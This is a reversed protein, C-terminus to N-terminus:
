LPSRALLCLPLNFLTLVYFPFMLFFFLMFFSLVIMCCTMGTRFLSFYKCYKFHWIKLHMHSSALAITKYYSQVFNKFSSLPIFSSLKITQQMHSWKDSILVPITNVVHFNSILSFYKCLSVFTAQKRCFLYNM